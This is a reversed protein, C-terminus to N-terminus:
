MTRRGIQMNSLSQFYRILSNSIKLRKTFARWAMSINPRVTLDGICLNSHLSSYISCVTHFFSFNVRVSFYKTFDVRKSVRKTLINSQRLKEDFTHSYIETNEVSHDAIGIVFSFYDELILLFLHQFFRLACHPFEIKQWESKVHFWDKYILSPLDQWLVISWFREFHSTLLM